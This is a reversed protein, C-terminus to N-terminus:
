DKLITLVEDHKPNKYFLSDHISSNNEAVVDSNSGSVSDMTEIFIETGLPPVFPAVHQNLNIELRVTNSSACLDNISTNEGVLAIQTQVTMVM